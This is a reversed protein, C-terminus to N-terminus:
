YIYTYTYKTFLFTSTAPCKCDIGLRLAYYKSVGDYGLQAISGDMLELAPTIYPLENYKKLTFKVNTKDYLWSPVPFTLYTQEDDPNVPPITDPTQTPGQPIDIEFNDFYSTSATSGWQKAFLGIKTPTIGLSSTSYLTTFSDKEGTTSYNFYYTNNKYAIQLWIPSNTVSNSAVASTATGGVFKDIRIGHYTADYNSTFLFANSGDQYLTIGVNSNIPPNHPQVKVTATWDGNPLSTLMLPCSITAATGWWDCKPSAPCNMVLQQGTETITGNNPTVDWINTNISNDDFNDSKYNFLKFATQITNNNYIAINDFTASNDLNAGVGKNVYPCINADMTYNIDCYLTGGVYVKINNGCDYVKFHYVTDVPMPGTLWAVDQLVTFHGNELKGVRLIQQNTSAKYYTQVSLIWNWSYVRSLWLYIWPNEGTDHAKNNKVDFEASYDSKNDKIITANSGTDTGNGLFKMSYSGSIPSASDISPTGNATEWNRYNGSRGTIKGDEFDDGYGYISLDNTFATASSNGYYAYFLTLLPPANILSLQVDYTASNSNTKSILNAKLVTEGDTDVFRIDSFDSNMGAQYLVTVRVVGEKIEGSSNGLNCFLLRKSWGDLWAPELFASEYHKWRMPLLLRLYGTDTENENKSIPSSCASRLLDFTVTDGLAETSWNEIVQEGILATDGSVGIGYLSIIMKSNNLAADLTQGVWKLSVSDWIVNNSEMPQHTHYAEAEVIGNPTTPNFRLGESTCLVNSHPLAAQLLGFGEYPADKIM